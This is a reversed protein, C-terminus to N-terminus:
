QLIVNVRYAFSSNMTYILLSINYIKGQELGKIENFKVNIVNNGPFIVNPFISTSPINLELLVASMIVGQITSYIQLQANGDGKLIGQGIQRIPFQITSSIQGVQKKEKPVGALGLVYGIISTIPIAILISSIKLATSNKEKGLDYIGKGLLINGFFLFLSSSILSLALVSIMIEIYASTESLLFVLLTTNFFLLLISSIFILKSGASGFGKEFGSKLLVSSILLGINFFMIVSLTIISIKNPTQFTYNLVSINMKTVNISFPLPYFYPIIVTVLFILSSILLLLLGNFIAKMKKSESSM